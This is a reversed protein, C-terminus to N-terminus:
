NQLALNTLVVKQAHHEAKLRVCLNTKASYLIRIISFGQVALKRKKKKEEKL